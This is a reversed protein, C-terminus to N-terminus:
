TTLVCLGIDYTDVGDAKIQLGWAVYISLTSVMNM